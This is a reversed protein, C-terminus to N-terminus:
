LFLYTKYYFCYFNNTIKHKEVNQLLTQSGTRVSLCDSCREAMETLNIGPIVFNKNEDLRILTHTM